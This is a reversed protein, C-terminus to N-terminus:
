KKSIIRKYLLEYMDVVNSYDFQKVYYKAWSIWAARLDTDDLLLELRRGFDATDKPNVLSLRGREKLVSAYGPNDGAVTVVGMAMAELLVIGFSEGYLAPSCFLNAKSFWEIKSNEDIYGLFSVNYLSLSDALEELRQREPGEGAIVLQVTKDNLFRSAFAKILYEVGKRKELRGIYLIHRKKGGLQNALPKYKQLDIGNPVIVIEQDTHKRIYVAAADSVATMIRLKGLVTRSVPVRFTEMTWALPTDPYIAHFTGIVPCKAKALIQLGIMPVEPEHIHLLDFKEGELMEDIYDRTLSIGVEASTKIPTKVNASNGVFIVESPIPGDFKRPKPTIIKVDYGRRRLESAQAWVHEQVGGNRFISYPCVLGIKM